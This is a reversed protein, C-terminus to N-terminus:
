GIEPQSWTSAITATPNHPACSPAGAIQSKGTVKGITMASPPIIPKSPMGSGPTSIPMANEASTSPAITSASFRGGRHTAATM